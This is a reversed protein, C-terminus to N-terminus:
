ACCKYLTNVLSICGKRAYVVKLPSKFASAVKALLPCTTLLQQCIPYAPPLAEFKNEINRRFFKEVFNLCSVDAERLQLLSRPARIFGTCLQKLSSLM